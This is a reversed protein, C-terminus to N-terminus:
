KTEEKVVVFAKKKSFPRSSRITVKDGLQCDNNEDHALFRTSVKMYKGYQPHKVFRNVEVTVTKKMKTSVVIGSLTKIM